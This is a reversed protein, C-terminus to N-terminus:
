GASERLVQLSHEVRERAKPRLPKTLALEYSALAADIDGLAKLLAGRQAAALAAVRQDDSDCLRDLIRRASAWDRDVIFMQALELEAAPFDGSRSDVATRYADRAAALDGTAREVRAMGVWAAAAQRPEGHDAAWRYADRAAGLQETTERLRGLRLAALTALNQGSEDEVHLLDEYASAAEGTEGDRELQRAMRHRLLLDARHGHRSAAGVLNVSRETGGSRRRLLTDLQAAAKAATSEDGWRQARELSRVAMDDNGLHQSLITGLLLDAAARVEARPHRRARIAALAAQKWRARYSLDIAM